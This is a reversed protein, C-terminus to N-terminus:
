SLYETLREQEMFESWCKAKLYKMPPMGERLYFPEYDSRKITKDNLDLDFAKFFLRMWNSYSVILSYEDKKEIASETEGKIGYYLVTAIEGIRSKAGKVNDKIYNVDVCLKNFIIDNLGCFSKRLYSHMIYRSDAENPLVITGSEKHPEIARFSDSEGSECITNSQVDKTEGANNDTERKLESEDVTEAVPVAETHANIASNIIPTSVPSEIVSTEKQDYDTRKIESSEDKAMNLVPPQIELKGKVGARDKQSRRKKYYLFGSLLGFFLTGMGTIKARESNDDIRMDYQISQVIGKQKHRLYLNDGICYVTYSILGITLIVCISALWSMIKETTLNSKM